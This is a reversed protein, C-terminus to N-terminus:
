CYYHHRASSLAAGHQGLLGEARHKTDPVLKRETHLALGLASVRTMLEPSVLLDVFPGFPEAGRLAKFEEVARLQEPTM